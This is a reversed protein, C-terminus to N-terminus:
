YFNMNMWAMSKDANYAIECALTTYADNKMNLYHGIKQYETEGELVLAKEDEWMMKLYNTLIIEENSYYKMNISPATNQAKEQCSSFNGHAVGAKLDEAAQNQTCSEHEQTARALPKINETNRYENVLQVCLDEFSSVSESNSSSVLTSSSSNTQFSSIAETSSNVTDSSCSLFFLVALSYIIKM